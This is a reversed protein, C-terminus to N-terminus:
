FRPQGDPQPPHPTTDPPATRITPSTALGPDTTPEGPRRLTPANPPRPPPAPESQSAATATQPLDVERETRVIKEGDVKMIKVQIVENGAFRIFEVDKPPTGYMWEEYEGRENSERIKKDPRGKAVSVMERDMGVLVKGAKIAARTKPPLSDTYAQTASLATFDFVPTLMKKVQEPTIEPVYKDFTLAVFSGKPNQPNNDPAIPTSGGGGAVEIRQYWKKKKKPGGNIEFIIIKDKIIVDSIQARDGPRAAPGYQAAMFQLQKDDPTVLGDKITLGKEGMPFIKRVFVREANLARILTFRTQKSIRPAESDAPDSAGAALGGPVLLLILAGIWRLGMLYRLRRPSPHWELLAIRYPL